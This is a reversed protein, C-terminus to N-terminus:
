HVILIKSPRPMPPTVRQVRWSCSKSKGIKLYEKSLNRLTGGGGGGVVVVVVVTVREADVM